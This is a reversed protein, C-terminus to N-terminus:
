RIPRRQDLGRATGGLPRHVDQPDFGLRKVQACATENLDRPTRLLATFARVLPSPSLYDQRGFGTDVLLYGDDSEILLCNVISDIAPVYPHMSACNLHHIM